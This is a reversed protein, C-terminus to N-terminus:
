FNLPAQLAAHYTKKHVQEDQQEVGSYVLRGLAILKYTSIMTQIQTSGQNEAIAHQKYITSTGLNM